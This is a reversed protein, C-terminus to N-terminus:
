GHISEAVKLEDPTNVGIVELADVSQTVIEIGERMAFAIVDTLYYEGSANANSLQPLARRLLSLPFCYIAPNLETITKEEDTADKAERIAIVKGQDDRVIRGWSIFGAYENTFHPVKATLMVLAEPKEQAMAPLSQLLAASLFPHDGYLVMVHTAGERIVSFASMVAHGTGLQEIQHAFIVDAHLAKQFLEQYDPHVVVIPRPDIAAKKLNELLHALMPKGSISVLPKPVSSGMRKGKGAALIVVQTSQMSSWPLLGSVRQCVFFRVM